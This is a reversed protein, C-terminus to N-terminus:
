KTPPVIKRQPIMKSAIARDWNLMLLITHNNEINILLTNLNYKQFWKRGNISLRTLSQDYFMGINTIRKTQKLIPRITQMVQLLQTEGDPIRIIVPKQMEINRLLKSLFIDRFQDQTKLKTMITRSCLVYVFTYM